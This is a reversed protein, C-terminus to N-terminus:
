VNRDDKQEGKCASVNRKADAEFFLDIVLVSM